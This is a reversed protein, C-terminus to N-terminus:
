VPTEYKHRLRYEAICMNHGLNVARRHRNDMTKPVRSTLHFITIKM